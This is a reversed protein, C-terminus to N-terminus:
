LNGSNKGPLTGGGPIAAGHSQVYEKRQEPTMTQIEKLTRQREASVPASAKTPIEASSGGSPKCGVLLLPMLVLLSLISQM